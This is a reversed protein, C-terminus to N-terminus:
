FHNKSENISNVTVIDLDTRALAAFIITPFYNWIILTGRLALLFTTRVLKPRQLFIL